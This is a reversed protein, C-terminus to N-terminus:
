LGLAELLDKVDQEKQSIARQRAVAAEHIRHMVNAVEQRGAPWWPGHQVRLDNPVRRRNPNKVVRAVPWWRGRYWQHWRGNIKMRRAALNPARPSLPIGNADKEVEPVTPWSAGHRGAETATGRKGVRHVGEAPEGYKAWRVIYPRFERMQLVQYGDRFWPDNYHPYTVYERSYMRSAVYSPIVRVTMTGPLGQNASRAISRSM